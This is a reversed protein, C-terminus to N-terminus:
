QPSEKPKPLYREDWAVNTSDVAAWEDHQKARIVRIDSFKVQKRDYVELVARFTKARAQGATEASVISEIGGWTTRWARRM